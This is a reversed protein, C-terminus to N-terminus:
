QPAQATKRGKNKFGNASRLDWQNYTTLIGFRMNWNESRRKIVNTVNSASPHATTAESLQVTSQQVATVPKSNEESPFHSAMALYSAREALLCFPLPTDTTARVM